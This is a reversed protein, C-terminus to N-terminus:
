LFFGLLVLVGHLFMLVYYNIPFKELEELESFVLCFITSSEVIPISFGKPPNNQQYNKKQM